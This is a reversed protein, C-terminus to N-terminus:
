RTALRRLTPTPALRGGAAREATEVAVRAVFRGQEPDTVDFGFPGNAELALLRDDQAILVDVGMLGGGLAAVMRQALEAMERPPEYVRPYVTGSTVLDGPDRHKEYALSCEHPSAFIRVCAPEEVWEQLLAPGRRECGRAEDERWGAVIERAEDLSRVLGIHRAGDCHSPKLVLPEGARGPWDDLAEIDWTAPQPVGHSAWIAHTLLKDSSAVIAQVPNLLPTGTAELASALKLTPAYAVVEEVLVHSIALDYAPVGDTAWAAPVHGLMEVDCGREQLARTWAEGYGTSRYHPDDTHVLLFRVM